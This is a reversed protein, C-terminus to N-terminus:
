GTAIARAIGMETTAENERNSRAPMESLMMLRPPKARPTPMSTSLEITTSSFTKRWLSSPLDGIAAAATPASSTCPAM